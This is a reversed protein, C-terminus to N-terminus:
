PMGERVNVAGFIRELATRVHKSSAVGKPLRKSDGGVHLVIPVTGPSERILEALADIQDRRGVTVHWGAIPKQEVPREVPAVENVQVAVEMPLEEGVSGRRERRRVRGKVVVIAEPQFNAQLDPYQKPFVILEVSGSMDELQAILMQSTASRIGRSSSAWRRRRGASNRKPRRRRSRPCSRSSSRRKRWHVSCRSSASSAIGRSALDTSSPPM